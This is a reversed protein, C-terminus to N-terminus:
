KVFKFIAALSFVARRQEKSSINVQANDQQVFARPNGRKARIRGIRPLSIIVKLSINLM